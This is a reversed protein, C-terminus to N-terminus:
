SSQLVDTIYDTRRAIQNEDLKSVSIKKILVGKKSSLRQMSLNKEM